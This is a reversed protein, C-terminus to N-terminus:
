TALYYLVTVSRIVQQINITLCFVAYSIRMISQLESTHEESRGYNGSVHDPSEASLGPHALYGLVGLRYNITVVIMGEKALKAGDYMAESGSGTVLSGGHIWVFVPAAKAHEPTWVNLTLCDESM